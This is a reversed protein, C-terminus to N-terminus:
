IQEDPFEIKKLLQLLAIIDDNYPHDCTFMKSELDNANKTIEILISLPVTVKRLINTLSPYYESTLINCSVILNKL